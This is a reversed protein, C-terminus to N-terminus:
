KAEFAVQMLKWQSYRHAISAPIHFPACRKVARLAAQANLSDPNGRVVKPEHALSGDLNLRVEIVPVEGGRAQAPPTYCNRIQEMFVPVLDSRVNSGSVCASMGLSLLLVVPRSILPSM